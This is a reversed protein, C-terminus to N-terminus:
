RGTTQLPEELATQYATEDIYGLDRMRELVYNRRKKAGAPNVIPNLISPGKPLGALMAMEALSLDGLSKGFYTQAAAEFGYARQGLFIQNIYIGLIQDKSLNREIKLVLLFDYLHRNITREQTMFLNRAVQTTITSGRMRVRDGRISAFLAPLDIGGHEYFREDEAALIAKKLMDPVNEIRVIERRAEGIEQILSGDATLPDLDPLKSWTLVSVAILFVLPAVVVTLALVTISYFVWRMTKRVNWRM